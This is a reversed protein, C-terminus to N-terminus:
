TTGGAQSVQVDDGGNPPARGEVPEETAGETAGETPEETAGPVEPTAPPVILAFINGSWTVELTPFELDDESVDLGTVLVARGVEVELRRFFDVAQFYGGSMTMQVDISGVVRSPDSAPPAGQVPVPDTFTLSEIVVGSADAALQFERVLGPQSADTPILEELRALDAQIELSRSALDELEAIQNRLTQQQQELQETEEKLATEQELAPKYLLFYWAVALVVAVLAAVIIARRM